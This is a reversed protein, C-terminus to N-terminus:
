KGETQGHKNIERQLLERMEKYRSKYGSKLGTAKQKRKLLTENTDIRKLLENLAVFPSHWGNILMMFKFSDPCESEKAHYFKAYKEIANEANRIETILPEYKLNKCATYIDDESRGESMMKRALNRRADIMEVTRGM